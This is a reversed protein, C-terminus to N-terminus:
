LGLSVGGMVSSSALDLSGGSSFVHNYKAMLFLPMGGRELSARRNLWFRMGAGSVFNGAGGEVSQLGSSAGQYYFAYQYGADAFPVAWKVPFYDATYMLRSDLILFYVSYSSNISPMGQGSSSQSVNGSFTTFGVNEEFYVSGWANFLKGAWGVEGLLSSAGGYNFNYSGNSIQVSQPSFSGFQVNLLQDYPSSDKDEKPPQEIKIQSVDIDARAVGTLALAQGILLISVIKLKM